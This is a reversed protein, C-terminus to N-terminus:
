KTHIKARIHPCFFVLRFTRTVRTLKVRRSTLIYVCLHEKLYYRCQM